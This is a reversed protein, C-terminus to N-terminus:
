MAVRAYYLSEIGALSGTDALIDLLNPETVFHHVEGAAQFSKGKFTNVKSLDSPPRLYKRVANTHEAIKSATRSDRVTIAVPGNATIFNLTRPIRDYPTARYRGSKDRRLASGTFKKVTEPDTEEAKAAARLSVKERRMRAIVGLARERHIAEAANRPEANRRSM